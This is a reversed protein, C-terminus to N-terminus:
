PRQLKYGVGFVTVIYKPNEVDPEIKRRLNNIHRDLTREYISGADDLINLLDERTLVQGAHTFFARLIRFEARTVSIPQGNVRVEHAEVDLALDGVRMVEAAREDATNRGARRLVAQVRASVERPSFPKTVYDDAGLELGVIRDVEDSRATLFITPIRAETQVSRFVDLGSGDPLTLDLIMLDPRERLALEMAEGATGTVSVRFGERQLYASLVEGIQPEDDTILVHRITM